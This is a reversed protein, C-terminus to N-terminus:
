HDSTGGEADDNDTVKVKVTYTGPEDDYTHTAVGDDGPATQTTDYDGDNTWDWQWKKIYNDDALSSDGGDPDSSASADFTVTQGVCVPDPDASLSATPDLNCACTEAAVFTVVALIWILFRTTM